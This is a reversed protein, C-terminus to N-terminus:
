AEAHQGLARLNYAAVAHAIETATRRSDPSTELWATLSEFVAGVVCRAAVEPDPAYLRDGAQILWQCVNKVQCTLIGRGVQELRPSLGASEVVFIRATAPNAALYLFLAEIAATVGQAPDAQSEMAETLVVGVHEGREELVAAFIDEKNRFYCYFSGVSSGAAAVIEPVTTTHYGVTGFLHTAADLLSRRRADKRAETSTTKRYVM